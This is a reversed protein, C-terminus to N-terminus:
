RRTAETRARRIARTSRLAQGLGVYVLLAGGLTILLSGPLVIAGGVLQAAGEPDDSTLLAYAYGVGLIGIALLAAGVIGFLPRAGASRMVGGRLRRLASLGRAPARQLPRM